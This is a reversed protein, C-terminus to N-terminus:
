EYSLFRCIIFFVEEKLASRFIKIVCFLLSMKVACDQLHKVFCYRRKLLLMRQGRPALRRLLQPVRREGEGGAFQTSVDHPPGPGEKEGAGQRLGQM